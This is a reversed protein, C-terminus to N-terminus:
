KAKPQAFTGTLHLKKEGTATLEGPILNLALRLNDPLDPAPTITLDLNILTAALPHSLLLTGTGTVSVERGRASLDPLEVRGSKITGALRLEPFHLDPITIGRLKGAELALDTARLDLTGNTTMPKTPNGSLEVSGNVHGQLTGELFLRLGAYRAVDLGSVKAHVDYADTGLDTTAELSGGYLSAALSLPFPRGRLLGLISPAAYVHTADLVPLTPDAGRSLIRLEDITYGLTWGLSVGRLDVSIPAAPGPDLARRLIAEHPFTAGLFVVFLLLTYVAYLALPAAASPAVRRVLRTGAALTPSAGLRDLRARWLDLYTGAAPASM